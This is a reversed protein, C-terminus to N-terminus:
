AVFNTGFTILLICALQYIQVLVILKQIIKRLTSHSNYLSMAATTKIKENPVELLFDTIALVIVDRIYTPM